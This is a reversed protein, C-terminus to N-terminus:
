GEFSPPRFRPFLIRYLIQLLDSLSLVDTEPVRCCYARVGRPLFAWLKWRHSDSWFVYNRVLRPTCYSFPFVYTSTIPHVITPFQSQDQHTKASPKGLSYTLCHERLWGFAVRSVPESPPPSRKSPVGIPGEQQETDARPGSPVDNRNDRPNSGSGPGLRNLLSSGGGSGRGRPGQMGNNMHDSRMGGGRAADARGMISM